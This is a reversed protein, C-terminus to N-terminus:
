LLFTSNEGYTPMQFPGWVDCYILNFPQSAHNNHSTFPLRHLKSLPCITCSESNFDSSVLLHIKNSLLKLVNDSLHGLRLYWLNANATHVFNRHTPNLFSLNCSLM